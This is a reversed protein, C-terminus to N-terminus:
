FNRIAVDDRAYMPVGADSRSSTVKHRFTCGGGPHRCAGGGALAAVGRASDGRATPGFRWRSVPPLAVAKHLLFAAVGAMTMPDRAPSVVRFVNLCGM